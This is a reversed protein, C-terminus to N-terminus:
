RLHRTVTSLFRKEAGLRNSEPVLEVPPSESFAYGTVLMLAILFAFGSIDLLGKYWAALVSTPTAKPAFALSLMATLATLLVAVIFPDPMYREFAGILRASLSALLGDNETEVHQAASRSIDEM